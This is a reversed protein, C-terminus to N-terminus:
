VLEYQHASRQCYIVISAEQAIRGFDGQAELFTSSLDLHKQHIYAACHRIAADGQQRLCFVYSEFNFGEVRVVSLTECQGVGSPKARTADSSALARSEKPTCPFHIHLENIHFLRQFYGCILLNELLRSHSITMNRINPVIKWIKRDHATSTQSHGHSVRNRLDFLRRVVYRSSACATTRDALGNFENELRLANPFGHDV